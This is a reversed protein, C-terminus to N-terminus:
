LVLKPKMDQKRGGQLISAIKKPDIKPNRDMDLLGNKEQFVDTLQTYCLGQIYPLKLFAETINQFRKLFENEDKVKGFYGWSSGSGDDFAIGGYETILCPKEQPQAGDVLCRKKQASTSLLAQLSDFYAPNLMEEIPTYDHIGYFDGENIQEWGDNAIVLRTSDLSKILAYLSAAFYQQKKSTVINRVGWSENLPVWAVICPHNYDRLIFQRMDRHLANSAQDTFEYASPLEGWVLFGLVDAWYYYHPSEIKQHKRAGNFGFRKSIEIDLKLAETSPPTLLTDAWYGQDLVLLQTLPQHNLLIESDRVEIKRMGFYTEVQDCVTGNYSLEATIGILNPTEPSWWHTNKIPDLNPVQLIISGQDRFVEVDTKGIVSAQEGPKYSPDMSYSSPDRMLNEYSVTFSLTYLGTKLTDEFAYFIEVSNTDIDPTCSLRTFWGDGVAELWVSQWIGTCGQYWCMENYEKWYQKGRPQSCDFYDEVRVSLLQEGNPRVFDTIEFSFPTYGGEHAGVRVGNLWVSTRYDVAGFHLLLRGGILGPDITFTRSYWVIPHYSVTGITSKESQYCYPVEISKELEKKLYWQHSLGQNADDFAFQYTGDLMQFASRRFDPRPYEHPLRKGMCM